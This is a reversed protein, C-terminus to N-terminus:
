KINLTLKSLAAVMGKEDFAYLSGERFAHIILLHIESAERRQM